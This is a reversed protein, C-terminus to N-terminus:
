SYDNTSQRTQDLIKLMIDDDGIPSVDHPHLPLHHLHPHPHPPPHPHLLLM